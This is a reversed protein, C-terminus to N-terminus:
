PLPGGAPPLPPVQNAQLGLATQIIWRPRQKVENYIRSIFEGMVGLILFQMGSLFLILCIM